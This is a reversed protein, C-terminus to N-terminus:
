HPESSHRDSQPRLLREKSIMRKNIPTSSTGLWELQFEVDLQSLWATVSVDCGLTATHTMRAAVSRCHTVEPRILKRSIKVVRLAETQYFMM